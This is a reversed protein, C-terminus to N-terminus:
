TNEGATMAPLTITFETGVKERRAVTITGHHQEVIGQSVPLGLGTGEGTGKTTYFPEFVRELDAEPIGIGTDSIVVRVQGQEASAVVSLKGGDPMAQLANLVINVFVQRLKDPDGYVHPLPDQLRSEIEINQLRAQHESVGLVDAVLLDIAVSECELDSRRAFALLKRVIQGARTAHKVIVDINERCGGADKPLEDLALQAYMNITGLPNNIEHAIGAVLLGVSALKDAHMLQSERERLEAHAEKLENDATRIRGHLHSYFEELKEALANFSRGLRGLEDDSDVEVRHDWKGKAYLEAGEALRRVRRGITLALVYGVVAALMMGGGAVAYQYHFAASRLSEYREAVIGVALAGITAGRPDRLPEYATVYWEGVVSARSSRRRGHRLVHDAIETSLRTGLARSGGPDIVNTSVRVDGLVITAAGIDRGRYREGRYVTDKVSDVIETSGNILVGGYVAGLLDEDASFVPVAAIMVLGDDISTFDDGGEEPTPVLETRARNALEVSELMLAERPAVETAGQPTRSRLASAVTWYSVPASRAVPRLGAVPIGDADVVGGFDLDAVQAVVKMADALLRTDRSKLAQRISHRRLATLQLASRIEDLRSQYIAEASNLDLSVRNQVERLIGEDIHYAGVTAAITGTIAIVAAFSAVMKTRLSVHM